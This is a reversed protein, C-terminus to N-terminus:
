CRRRASATRRRAVRGLERLAAYGELLATASPSCCSRGGGRSRWAPRTRSGATPTLPTGLVRLGLTPDQMAARSLGLMGGDRVDEGLLVRRLDERLLEAV